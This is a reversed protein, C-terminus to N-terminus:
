IPLALPPEKLLSLQERLELIHEGWYRETNFWPFNRPFAPDEWRRALWACYHLMRLTRLPEIWKLQRLPFEYFEEYGEVIESLQQVQLHREGSLLMWIDQIAPAMRADDFDVFHVYDDRWLMNGIHCDGHTRICSQLYEEDLRERLIALLDRTLSGYASKLSDPIFHASVFEVCEEGYSRVDITPRHQFSSTASVAHIRGMLRGLIFLNDMQDLEPAHGGKRPYLSFYFGEFSRVSEGDERRLPTVVPLEHSELEYTYDHEEKIQAYDWRGPRYFKAILPSADEVGVQYVRNEYSNLPFIRGDCWLGEAEVANLIFEPTLKEFPHLEGSDSTM